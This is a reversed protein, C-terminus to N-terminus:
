TAPELDVIVREDLDLHENGLTVALAETEIRVLAPRVRKAVAAPLDHKGLIAVERARPWAENEPTDEVLERRHVAGTQVDVAMAVLSHGGATLIRAEVGIATILEDHDLTKAASM